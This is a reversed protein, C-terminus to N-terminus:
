FPCQYKHSASKINLAFLPFQTSVGLAPGADREHFRRVRRGENEEGKAASEDSWREAAAAGSNLFIFISGLTICLEYYIKLIVQQPALGSSYQPAVPKKPKHVGAPVGGGGAKGGDDRKVRLNTPM